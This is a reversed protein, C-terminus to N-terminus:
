KKRGKMKKYVIWIIILLILAVVIGGILLLDLTEIKAETSLKKNMFAKREGFRAYITINKVKDNFPMDVYRVGIARNPEIEWVKGDNFDIYTEGDFATVKFTAYVKKAGNNKVSFTLTKKDKKYIPNVISINSLDNYVITSINKTFIFGMDLTNKSLGYMVTIQSVLDGEMGEPISLNFSFGKETNPEIETLPVSFSGISNNSILVKIDSTFYAKANGSSSVVIELMKREKDYTVSSINLTAYPGPLVFIDLNVQQSSISPAGQGTKVFVSLSGDGFESNVEKKLNYLANIYEKNILSIVKLKHEAVKSKIFDVVNNPIITSVFIIPFDAEDITDELINGDTAIFQDSPKESLYRKVIEINDEYKDGTSITDFSIGNTKLATIIERPVYGYVIVPKGKVLSAIDDAKEKFGFIIFYHKLKAYPLVSVAPYGYDPNVIVYGNPNAMKAIELNSLEARDLYVVDVINKGSAELVDKLNTYVPSDKSQFLTVNKGLKYLLVRWLLPNENQGPYTFFVKEGVINAYSIASIIDRGDMSNVLVSSFSLSVFLLAIFIGFKKM